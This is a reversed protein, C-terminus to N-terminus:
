GHACEAQRAVFADYLLRCRYPRSLKETKGGGNSVVPGWENLMERLTKAYGDRRLPKLERVALAPLAFRYVRNPLAAMRAIERWLIPWNTFARNM